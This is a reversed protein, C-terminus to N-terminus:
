RAVAMLRSVKGEANSITYIYTGNALYGADFSFKNVGEELRIKDDYVRQGLMDFVEFRFDGSVYSGVEIQTMSSFPNPVNRVSAIHGNLDNTSVPCAATQLILYYHEDNLPFELPVSGFQFNISVTIGLDLTDPASNSAAPTGALLICGLSNAQFVCNPPDCTYSVGTPLNSIAGTTAISVSSLPLNQYTAPVNFTVSQTYPKGICAMALNYAPTTPSWTQPSLLTDTQYISSDRM